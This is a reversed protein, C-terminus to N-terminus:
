TSATLPYTANRTGAGGTVAGAGRAILDRIDALILNTERMAARMSDSVTAIAVNTPGAVIGRVAESSDIQKQVDDITSSKKAGLNTLIAGGVAILGMAMGGVAGGLGVSKGIDTFLKTLMFQLTNALQDIARRFASQFINSGIDALIKMAKEGALIGNYVGDGVGKAIDGSIEKVMQLDAEEVAKQMTKVYTANIEAAQGPNMKRTAEARQRELDDLKKQLPSKTLDDIAYTAQKLLEDAKEQQTAIVQQTVLSSQRLYSSAIALWASPNQKLLAVSKTFVDSLKQFLEPKGLNQISQSLAAEQQRLEETTKSLELSSLRQKLIGVTNGFQLLARFDKDSADANALVQTTYKALTDDLSAIKAELPNKGVTDLQLNVQQLEQNVGKWAEQLDKLTTLEYLSRRAESAKKDLNSLSDAVAGLVRQAEAPTLKWTVIALEGAAKIRQKLEDWGADFEALQRQSDTLDLAGATTKQLEKIKTGWSEVATGIESSIQLTAENAAAGGRGGVGLILNQIGTAVSGATSKPDNLFDAIKKTSARLTGEVENFLKTLSTTAKSSTDTGGLTSIRDIVRQLDPDDAYEGYVKKQKALMDRLDALRSEAALRGEKTINVSPGGLGFAELAKGVLSSGGLMSYPVKVVGTRLAETLTKIEEQIGQKNGAVFGEKIADWLASGVAPIGRKIALLALDIVMDILGLTTKVIVGGFRGALAGLSLKGNVYDDIAKNIERFVRDIGGAVIESFKKLAPESDRVLKSISDALRGFPGALIVSVEDYLNTIAVTMRKFGGTAYDQQPGLSHVKEDMVRMAEATFAAKKQYEDLVAFTLGLADRYHMEAVSQDVVLGITKLARENHRGLGSIVSDIASVTDVGMSKGLLKANEVLHAFGDSNHVLGYQVAQNAAEMLNMDDVSGHVAARLKVLLENSALGVSKTLSDFAARTQEVKEARVFIEYTAFGTLLTKLNLIKDTIGGLLGGFGKVVKQALDTAFKEAQVGLDKLGKGLKQWQSDPPVAHTYWHQLSKDMGAAFEDAYKLTEKAQQEFKEAHLEIDAWITGAQWDFTPM